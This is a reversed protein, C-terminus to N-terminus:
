SREEPDVEALWIKISVSGDPHELRLGREVLLKSEDDPDTFVRM